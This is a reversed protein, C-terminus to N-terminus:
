NIYFAFFCSLNPSYNPYAWITNNYESINNVNLAEGITLTEYAHNIM